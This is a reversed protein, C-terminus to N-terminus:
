PVQFTNPPIENTCRISLYKSRVHVVHYAKRGGNLKIISGLFRFSNSTKFFSIGTAADESISKKWPGHWAELAAQVFDNKLSLGDM